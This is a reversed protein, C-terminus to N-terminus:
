VMVAGDTQCWGNRSCMIFLFPTIYCAPKNSTLTVSNYFFLFQEGTGALLYGCSLRVYSM